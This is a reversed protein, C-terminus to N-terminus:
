YDTIFHMIQPLCTAYFSKTVVLLLYNLMKIKDIGFAHFFFIYFINNSKIEQAFKKWTPAFRICHGCWSSYFEIIWANSKGLVSSHFNTTNLQWLPDTDDYLTKEASSGFVLLLSPVLLLFLRM